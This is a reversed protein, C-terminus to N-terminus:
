ATAEATIYEVISPVAYGYENEFTLTGNGEVSLMNDATILDSIDTVSEKQSVICKIPHQQLYANAAAPTTITQDSLTVLIYNNPNIFINTDANYDNVSSNYGVALVKTNPVTNGAAFVLTYLTDYKVVQLAPYTVGDLIIRKAKRRYSVTGDENWVISNYYETDPIGEGYGDLAQVAEPIPLTNRVYPTYPLASEGKNMMVFFTGICATGNSGRQLRLNYYRATPHEAFNFKNVSLVSLNDSHIQAFSADLLELRIYV